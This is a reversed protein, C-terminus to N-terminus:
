QKVGLATTVDTSRCWRKGARSGERSKGEVRITLEQGINLTDTSTPHLYSSVLGVEQEMRQLEEERILREDELFDQLSQYRELSEKWQVAHKHMTAALNTQLRDLAEFRDLTEDWVQMQKQLEQNDEKLQKYQAFNQRFREAQEKYKTKWEEVNENAAKLATSLESIQSEKGELEEKQKKFREAVDKLRNCKAAYSNYLSRGEEQIREYENQYERADEQSNILDVELKKLKTQAKLFM